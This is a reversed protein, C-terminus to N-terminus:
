IELVMMVHLRTIRCRNPKGMPKDAKIRCYSTEQVEGHTQGSQRKANVRLNSKGHTEKKKEKEKKFIARTGGNRV